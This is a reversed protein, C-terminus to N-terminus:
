KIFDKLFTVSGAFSAGSALFAVPLSTATMFTLCGAIIAVAASSFIILAAKVSIMHDEVGPESPWGGKPVLKMRTSLAAPCWSLLVSAVGSNSRASAM